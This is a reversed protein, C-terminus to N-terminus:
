IKEDQLIVLQYLFANQHVKFVVSERRPIVVTELFAKEINSGM